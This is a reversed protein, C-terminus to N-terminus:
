VVNTEDDADVEILGTPDTLLMPRPASTDSNSNGFFNRYEGISRASLRTLLDGTRGREIELLRELRRIELRSLVVLEIFGLGALIITLV